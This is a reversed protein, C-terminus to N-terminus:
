KQPGAQKRSWSAFQHAAVALQAQSGIELKEVIRQRQAAILSPRCGFETAIQENTKGKAFRRLLKKEQPSLKDRDPSPIQLNTGRDARVAATPFDSVEGSHILAARVHQLADLLCPGVFQRWPVSSM